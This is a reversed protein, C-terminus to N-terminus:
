LEVAVDSQNNVTSGLRIKRPVEAERRPARSSPTLSPTSTLTSRQFPSKAARLGQNGEVVERRM